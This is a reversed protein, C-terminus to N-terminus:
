ATFDNLLLLDQVGVRRQTEEISFVWDNNTFKIQDGTIPTAVAIAATKASAVGESQMYHLLAAGLDAFEACSLTQEREPLGRGRVVAFRANTGGVDGVIRLTEILGTSM